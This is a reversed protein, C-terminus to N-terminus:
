DYQHMGFEMLIGEIERGVLHVRDQLGGPTISVKWEEYKKLRCARETEKGPDANDHHTVQWM